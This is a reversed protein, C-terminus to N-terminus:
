LKLINYIKNIREHKSLRNVYKKVFDFRTEKVLDSNWWNNLNNELFNLHSLADENNEFFIKANKLREFDLKVKDRLPCEDLKSILIFPKNIFLCELFGTAIYSFILLDYKEFVKEIKEESSIKIKIGPLNNKWIYQHNWGFEAEHFRPYIKNYNNKKDLKKFFNLCNNYYKSMQNSGTSSDLRHPFKGRSRLFYACHKLKSKVNYNKYKVSKIYSFPIVNKNDDKQWGWTLFKDSIRIEHDEAWLFSFHGYAGGHQGLIIKTKYHEKKEAMYRIFINDNSLTRTTFIKKPSIPYKSSKIIEGIKEFDELFEKPLNLFINKNIFKEFENNNNTNLTLSKRLKLDIKSVIETNPFFNPLQLLKINILLEEYKGIYTKYLVYNNSKLFPSFISSYLDLIKRFFKTKFNIQYNKYYKQDSDILKSEIKFNKNTNKKLFLLIKYYLNQNWKEDSVLNMFERTNKSVIIKDDYYIDISKIDPYQEIAKNINEWRDYTSSIYCHLWYGLIIRYFNLSYNKKHFKNLINKLNLLISEYLKDLYVYDRRLKNRDDWHYNVVTENTKLYKDKFCWNGLYIKDFNHNNENIENMQSIILKINNM